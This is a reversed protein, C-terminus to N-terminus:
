GRPELQGGIAVAAEPEEREVEIPRDDREVEPDVRAVLRRQGARPLAPQQDRSARAAGVRASNLPDPPEVQRLRQDAVLAGLDARGVTRHEEVVADRVVERHLHDAEAALAVQVDIGIAVVQQEDLV